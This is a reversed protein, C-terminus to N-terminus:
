RQELTPGYKLRCTREHDPTLDTTQDGEMLCYQCKGLGERGVHRKPERTQIATLVETLMHMNGRAVGKTRRRIYGDIDKIENRIISMSSEADWGYKRQENVKDRIAQRIPRTVWEEKDMDELMVRRNNYTLPIKQTLGRPNEENTFEDAVLDAAANGVSNQTFYKKHSRQHILTLKGGRRNMMSDILQLLQWETRSEDRKGQNANEIANIAAKSDTVCTIDWESPILM